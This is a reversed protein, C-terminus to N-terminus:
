GTTHAAWECAAQPKALLLTLRHGARQQGLQLAAASFYLPQEKLHDSQLHAM